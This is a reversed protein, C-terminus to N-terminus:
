KTALHVFETLKVRLLKLHLHITQLAYPIPYSPLSIIHAHSSGSRILVQSSQYLLCSKKSIEESSTSFEKFYLESDRRSQVHYSTPHKDAQEYKSRQKHCKLVGLCLSNSTDYPTRATTPQLSTEHLKVTRSDFQPSVCFRALWRLHICCRVYMILYM